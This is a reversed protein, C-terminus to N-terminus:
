HGRMGRRSGQLGARVEHAIAMAMVLDDHAGNAAGMRGGPHTVFSRCEQLLRRSHFLRPSEVLLAGMRSIMGPKSAASTLWGAVGGQEYVYAYRESADLYALVGAGHNNREVAILAANYERALEAAAHALDLTGLRQRLEACQMGSDVDLVQVAAYDGDAGGGATDVAVVYSRGRQTPLWVELAGDRRREIPEPVGALRDYLAAVEFCCEGSARFCSEADEAFEQARLGRYSSELGRRFGIQASSLGHEEMLALEDERPDSVPRGIYAPEWWWPFFHQVTGREPAQQWEEYFCGFAGNPTSEMVMEGSPVLAARMGALTVAADGPWRSLESCHLNHITLGRGANRDAASLVRFESDLEAFSMQGVNNRSRKLSKKLGDPLCDYFRQVMRFISEAAERTQAVQATLVGPATITKLFFRAAIWTTLGMQRAKLVINRRGMQEDFARQARNPLLPVENGERDRIRLLSGAAIAYLDRSEPEPKRLQQGLELLDALSEPVTNM